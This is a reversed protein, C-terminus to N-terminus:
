VSPNDSVRIEVDIEGIIFIRQNTQTFFVMWTKKTFTYTFLKRYHAISMLNSKDHFNRARFAHLNVSSSHCEMGTTHIVDSSLVKELSLRM